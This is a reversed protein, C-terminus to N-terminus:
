KKSLFEHKSNTSLSSVCRNLDKHNEQIGGPLHQNRRLGCNIRDHSAARLSGLRYIITLLSSLLSLYKDLLKCRFIKSFTIRFELPTAESHLCNNSSLVFLGLASNQNLKCILPETQNLQQCICCM